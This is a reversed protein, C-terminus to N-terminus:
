VFRVMAPSSGAMWLALHRRKNDQIAPELGAM